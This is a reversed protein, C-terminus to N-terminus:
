KNNKPLEDVPPTKWHKNIIPIYTRRKTEDRKVPLEKKQQLEKLDPETEIIRPSLAEQMAYREKEVRESQETIMVNLLNHLQNMVEQNLFNRSAFAIRKYLETVKGNLDEDSLKSLNLSPHFLAGSIDM